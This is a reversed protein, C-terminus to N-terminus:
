LSTSSNKTPLGTEMRIVDEELGAVTYRMGKYQLKGELDKLERNALDLQAELIVEQTTPMSEDIDAESTSPQENKRATDIMELLSSKKPENEKKKRRHHDGKSPLCNRRTATMFKRVMQKRVTGLIVAAYEPISAPSM